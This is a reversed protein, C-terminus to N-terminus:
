LPQNDDIHMQTRIREILAVLVPEPDALEVAPSHLLETVLERHERIRNELEQTEDILRDVIGALIQERGDTGTELFQGVTETDIWGGDHARCIKGYHSTM